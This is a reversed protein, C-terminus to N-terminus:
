SSAFVAPAATESIQGFQPAGIRFSPNFFHSYQPETSSTWFLFAHLSSSIRSFYAPSRVTSDPSPSLISGSLNCFLKIHPLLKRIATAFASLWAPLKRGNTQARFPPLNRRFASVSRELGSRQKRRLSTSSAISTELNLHSHLM